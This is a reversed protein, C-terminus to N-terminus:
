FQYTLYFRGYLVDDDQADDQDYKAYGAWMRLALKELLGSSFKYKLELTVEDAVGIDTASNAMGEDSQDFHTFKLRARELEKIGFDFDAGLCIADVGAHIANNILMNTYLLADPVHGLAGPFENSDDVTTYALSIKAPGLKTGVKVGYINTDDETDDDFTAGAYLLGLSLPFETPLQYDSRIFYQNYGGRVLVPVDGNTDDNTMQFQGDVTLGEISTNKIYASYFGDDFHVDEQVFSGNSDSGYRKNWEQIYYLQIDTDPIYKTSLSVADFSDTLAFASSNMLLPTKIIQRGVKIHSEMNSYQLYLEDMLTATVSNRSDDESSGDEDHIGFDKASQFGLGLKFGKYDDSLYNLAIAGSAVNKNSSTAAAAVDTETGSVYITEIRGKLKGNKFADILVDGAIVHTGTLMVGLLSVLLFPLGVGFINFKKM